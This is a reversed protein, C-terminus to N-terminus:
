LPQSVRESMKGGNQSKVRNECNPGGVRVGGRAVRVLVVVALRRDSLVRCNVGVALDVLRQVPRYGDSRSAACLTDVNSLEIRSSSKRHRRAPRKRAEASNHRLQPCAYKTCFKSM